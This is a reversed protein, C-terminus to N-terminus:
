RAILYTENAIPRFELILTRELDTAEKKSMGSEVTEHNLIGRRKGLSFILEKSSFESLRAQRVHEAMREEVCRSTSGFYCVTESMMVKYVSYEM